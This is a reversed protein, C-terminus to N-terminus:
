QKQGSNVLTLQKELISLDFGEKRVRLDYYRLTLATMWFPQLFLLIMSSLIEDIMDKNLQSFPIWNYVLFELGTDISGAFAIVLMLLLLILLMFFILLKMMNGKVMQQNRTLAEGGSKHEIIVIQTIFLGM